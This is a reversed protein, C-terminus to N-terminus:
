PDGPAAGAAGAAGAAPALPAAAILHAACRFASVKDTTGDDWAVTCKATAPGTAPRAIDIITGDHVGYGKVRMRVRAGIVCARPALPALWARPALPALPGAGRSASSTSSTSSTYSTTTITRTTTTSSTTTAVPAVAPPVRDGVGLMDDATRKLAPRATVSTVSPAAVPVSPAPATPSPGAVPVSPAPATPTTPTTPAAALPASPRPPSHSTPALAPADPVVPRVVSQDVAPQAAAAAAARAVAAAVDTTKAVFVEYQVLSMGRDYTVVITPFSGGNSTGAHRSEAPEPKFPPLYMSSDGLPYYGTGTTIVSALFVHRVDFGATPCNPGNPGAQGRIRTTASPDPVIHTYREASVELRPSFYAGLGFANASTRSRAFHHLIGDTAIPHVCDPNTTGHWMLETSVRPTTGDPRRYGREHDDALTAATANLRQTFEDLGRPNQIRYVDLVTLDKATAAAKVVSAWEISGLDVPVRAYCAEQLTYPLIYRPESKTWLHITRAVDGITRKDPLVRSAAALAESSDVNRSLVPTRPALVVLDRRMARVIGTTTNTQTLARVDITYSNGGISARLSAVSDPVQDPSGLALAAEAFAARAAEIRSNVNAEYPHFAPGLNVSWVVRTNTKEASAM